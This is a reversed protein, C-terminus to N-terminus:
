RPLSSSLLEGAAAAETGEDADGEGCAEALAEGVSGAVAVVDAAGGAEEFSGWSPPVPTGDGVPRGPVVAPSPM